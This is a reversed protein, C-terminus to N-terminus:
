QIVVVSALMGPFALLHSKAAVFLVFQYNSEQPAKKALTLAQCTFYQWSGALVGKSCVGESKWSGRM